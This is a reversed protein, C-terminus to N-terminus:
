YDKQNICNTVYKVYNFFTSTKENTERIAGFLIGILGFCTNQYIQFNFTTKTEILVRVQEQYKNVAQGITTQLLVYKMMDSIPVNRFDKLSCQCAILIEMLSFLEKYSVGDYYAQECLYELRRLIVPNLFPRNFCNSCVVSDINYIYPNILINDNGCVQCKQREMSSLDLFSEETIIDYFSMLNDNSSLLALFNKLDLNKVVCGVFINKDIKGILFYRVGSDSPLGQFFRLHEDAVGMGFAPFIKIPIEMFECEVFGSNGM